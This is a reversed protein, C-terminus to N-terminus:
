YSRLYNQYKIWQRINHMEVDSLKDKRLRKERRQIYSIKGDRFICCDGFRSRNWTTSDASYFGYEFVDSKSYGLGHVKVGKSNAYQVLQKMKYYENSSIEKTVLGGISIYDYEDCLKKFEEVGRSKHWVPICKRDTKEEIYKRIKLVNEYGVICDIDLEFYHKVDNENIFQIYKEIYENWNVSGKRSSMFTFAGSDLLFLEASKILPIQFDKIYFFSELVFPIEKLM